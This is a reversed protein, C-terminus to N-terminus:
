WCQHPDEYWRGVGGVEANCWYRCGRHQWILLTLWANSSWGFIILLFQRNGDRVYEQWYRCEGIAQAYIHGQWGFLRASSKRHEPWEVNQYETVVMIPGLVPARCPLIEAAAQLPPGLLLCYLLLYLCHCPNIWELHLIHCVTHGFGLM